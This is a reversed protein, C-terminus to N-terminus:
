KFYIGGIILFIVGIVLCIIYIPANMVPSIISHMFGYTVEEDPMNQSYVLMHLTKDPFELPKELIKSIAKVVVIFFSYILLILGTASFKNM